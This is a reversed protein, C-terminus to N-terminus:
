HLASKPVPAGAPRLSEQAEKVASRVMDELNLQVVKGGMEGAVTKIAAEAMAMMERQKAQEDALSAGGCLIEDGVLRPNVDACRGDSCTVRVGRLTFEDPILPEAPFSAQEPIHERIGLVLGMYKQPEISMETPRRGHHAQISDCLDDFWETVIDRSPIGLEMTPVNEPVDEVVEGGRYGRARSRDCPIIIKVTKM